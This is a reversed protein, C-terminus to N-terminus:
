AGGEAPPPVPVEAVVRRGARDAARAAAVARAPRLLLALMMDRTYELELAWPRAIRM